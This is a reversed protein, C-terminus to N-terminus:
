CKCYSNALSVSLVNDNVLNNGEEYNKGDLLDYSQYQSSTPQCTTGSGDRTGKSAVGDCNEGTYATLLDAPLSANYQWSTTGDAQLPIKRSDFDMCFVFWVHRGGAAVSSHDIVLTHLILLAGMDM